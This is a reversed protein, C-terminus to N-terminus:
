AVQAHKKQSVTLYPDFVACVLRVVQPAEANISVCMGSVEVLGDQHLPALKELVPTFHNAPLGERKAFDELDIEMYCMLQEILRRTVFDAPKVRVGKRTPLMDADLADFYAHNNLTNQLYGQPLDSIASTGFGILTSANDTSYGQFNRTLTHNKLAIAMPDDPKVFHDLGIQIYGKELLTEAAAAFQDLREAGDPLTTEDIQGMHKKMWPVHAYGFLSIRSPNLGLAIKINERVRETTQKPLGYLLDMNINNIKYARLLAVADYIMHLPQLRNIATQVDSHFDQVGLSVRNVGAQSYAAVKMETLERPDVEIAIEAKELVSFHRNIHGLIDNFDDASMYSPSGGGFHIHAVPRKGDLKPAVLSIEKKLYSLYDRVPEYRKSAKTHCGCYWCIKKCFPIHLYLSLPETSDIQSLWIAADGAGVVESFHNATPYSTYRPVQQNHKLLAHTMNAPL